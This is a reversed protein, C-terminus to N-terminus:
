VRNKNVHRCEPNQLSPPGSKFIVTIYFPRGRASDMKEENVAIRWILLSFKNRPCTEEIRKYLLAYSCGRFSPILGM